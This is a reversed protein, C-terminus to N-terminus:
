KKDRPGADSPLAEDSLATNESFSANRGMSQELQWRGLANFLNKKRTKHGDCFIGLDDMLSQRHTKGASPCDNAWIPLDWQKAAKVIVPKELTLLPRIVMLKGKFFPEKMSMGAIRGAQFANMLFSSVLDETTHGFALHTLNYRQCLRFLSTRRLMACYFCPSSRRRNESSHARMGHQTVEIHGSLGREALWPILPAHSKPDFGPNVHLAMIEFPFPVIRQRLLLTQLLVWSDVGGSVAVGVRAGPYVMETAQMLKGAQRVCQNQHYSLDLRSM